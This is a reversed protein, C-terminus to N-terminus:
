DPKVYSRDLQFLRIAVLINWIMSPLIVIYSLALAIMGLVPLPPVLLMAGVAMGLFATVKNFVGSQLMVAAIILDAIGGLIFFLGFATGNYNALLAEGAALFAARQVDTAAAAYQDSLYLMSFTPNVAFFFVIGGLGLTLAITLLAPNYRRLAAYLAFLIPVNCAEALILILDLDVLGLLKSDQFQVFHGIVTSPQPFLIFIPAQILAIAVVALAAIGGIKYMSKWSSGENEANTAQITKLQSTMENEKNSTDM